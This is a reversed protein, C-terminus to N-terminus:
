IKSELKEILQTTLGANAGSVSDIIQGNHFTVFYPIPNANYENALESCKDVNVRTFKIKKNVVSIAALSIGVVTCPLCWDAYFDVFVAINNNILNNLEHSSNINIM